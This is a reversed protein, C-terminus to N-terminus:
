VIKETKKEEPLVISNTVVLEKIYSNQIRDISTWVICSTYLLM